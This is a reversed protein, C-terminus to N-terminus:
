QPCKEKGGGGEETRTRRFIVTVLTQDLVVKVHYDSTVKESLSNMVKCLLGARTVYYMSKPEIDLLQTGTATQQPGANHKNVHM